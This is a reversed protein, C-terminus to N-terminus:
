LTKSTLQIQIKQIVSTNTSNSRNQTALQLSGYMGLIQISTNINVVYEM